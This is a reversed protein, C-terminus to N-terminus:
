FSDPVTSEMGSDIISSLPGRCIKVFEEQLKKRERYKKEAKSADCFLGASFIMSPKLYTTRRMIGLFQMEDVNQVLHEDLFLEALTEPRDSALCYSGTMRPVESAEGRGGPFVSKFKGEASNGSRILVFTYPCQYM